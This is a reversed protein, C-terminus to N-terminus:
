LVEKISDDEVSSIATRATMVNEVGYLIESENTPPPIKPVVAYYITAM